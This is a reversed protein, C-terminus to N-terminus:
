QWLMKAVFDCEPAGMGTENRGFGVGAQPWGLISKSQVPEGLESKSTGGAVLECNEVPM